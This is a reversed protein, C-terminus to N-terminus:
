VRWRNIVTVNIAMGPVPQWTGPLVYHLYINLFGGTDTRMEEGTLRSCRPDTGSRSSCAIRVRTAAEKPQSEM